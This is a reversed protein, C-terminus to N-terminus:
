EHGEEAAWDGEVESTEMFFKDTSKLMPLREGLSTSMWEKAKYRSEIIALGASPSPNEPAFHVKAIYHAFIKGLM